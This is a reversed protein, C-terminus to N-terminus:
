MPMPGMKNRQATATDITISDAKLPAQDAASATTDATRVNQVSDQARQNKLMEMAEQFTLTSKQRPLHIDTKADNHVTTTSTAQKSGFVKGLVSNEVNIGLDVGGVIATVGLGTLAFDRLIQSTHRRNEPVHVTIPGVSASGGAGGAGGQAIAVNSAPLGSTKNTIVTPYHTM